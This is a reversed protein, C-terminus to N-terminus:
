VREVDKSGVEPADPPFAAQALFPKRVAGVEVHGMYRLDLAALPLRAHTRDGLQRPRESYGSRLQEVAYVSAIVAFAARGVAEILLQRILTTMEFRTDAWRRSPDGM